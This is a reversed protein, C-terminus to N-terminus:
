KRLYKGLLQGRCCNLSIYDDKNQSIITIEKGEINIKKKKTM